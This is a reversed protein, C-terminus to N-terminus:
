LRNGNVVNSIANTTPNRYAKCQRSNAAGCNVTEGDIPQWNPAETSSNPNANFVNPDNVTLETAIAMGSGLVFAFLPLYTMRFLKKM